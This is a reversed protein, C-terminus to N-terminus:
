GTSVFAHVVDRQLGGNQGSEPIVGFVFFERETESGSVQVKIPHDGSGDSLCKKLCGGM